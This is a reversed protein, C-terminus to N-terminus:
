RGDPGSLAPEPPAQDPSTLVARVLQTRSRIGLKRYINRLHFEITKPSLFLAAAAERNSAGEAIALAVQLEQPTLRDTAAPPRRRVREGSARLEGRAREAWPQAGLRDFADLAEHLHERADVRRGARRLREGLCLQTRAAEFPMPIHEHRALAERFRDEDDDVLARCRAAAAHAWPSSSHVAQAEFAALRGNADDRRGVRVYAEILDPAWMLVAPDEGPWRALFSTMGELAAIAEEARGLGLELLGEVAGVYTRVVDAGLREILSLSRAIHARCEAERGLAAEVRALISLAYAIDNLQGTEESLRVAEDGAALAAAWRGGRFELEGLSLLGYPLLGPASWARAQEIGARLIRGAREHDEMWMFAQGVGFFLVPGLAWRDDAADLWDVARELLPRARPREGCLLLAMALPLGAPMEPLGAQEALERGRRATELGTGNRGAEFFPQVAAMTMTAARVPDLPAIRDAETVLLEAAAASTGVRAQVRARLLQVDARRPGDAVLPLAEDLLELAREPP